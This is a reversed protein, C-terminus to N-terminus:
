VVQLQAPYFWGTCPLIPRSEGPRSQVLRFLGPNFFEFSPVNFWCGLLAPNFCCGWSPPILGAGGIPRSQVLLGLLAPNFWCGWYPPISGAAGVSRSQVLLRLLAPNFWCGLLAPNFWCGWSFPISGNPVLHAPRLTAWSACTLCADSDVRGEIFLNDRRKRVLSCKLEDM